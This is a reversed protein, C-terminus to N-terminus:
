RIFEIEVPIEIPVRRWAQDSTLVPLGKLIGLALCARDGLSLGAAKTPPRLLGAVYAAESGFQVNAFNLPGLTDRIEDEPMGSDSLKTVLEAFNVDSMFGPRLLAASVLEGGQEENLYAMVASTDYIFSSM